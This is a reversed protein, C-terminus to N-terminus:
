DDIESELDDAGSPSTFGPVMYTLFDRGAIPSARRSLIGTPFKEQLSSLNEQDDPHVLFLQAEDTQPLEPIQEPWLVFDAGPQGAILAILRADMWHPIAVMYVNKSSGISEIFGRAVAGAESTNWAARREMDGYEDIVLNYNIVAAIAFLGIVLGAGIRRRWPEEFVNQSWAWIAALMVGAVTFVSIIAGGARGPHPNEGPFAISMISPLLLIPISLLLFLDIWNRGKAYRVILYVVGLHFLTGTAWDLAPRFPLSLVWIEGFDSTFMRMANWINSALIDVPPGPLPREAASVRTLTRYFVDDQYEYTVRLFPVAAVLALLAAIAVWTAAQRRHGKSLRHVLYLLLGLAVILPTIRAPTYGYISLGVLLGSIVFDNQARRRFGRVMFYMAPALLLPFFPLRMGVRSLINPWYAIGALAMAALGVEKGGVEKGLLYIFPLTLVGALATVTKLTLFSFDANFWKIAAAVAYFQMPERCANRPFFISTEGNLIDIVDLYKEAHDSIMELPVEALQTFRFTAALLFVAVVLLSWANLSVRLQPKRIFNRVEAPFKAGPVPGLWFARATVIISAGWFIVTSLRFTNDGATLYTVVALGLGVLLYNRSFGVDASKSRARRYMFDGYDGAWVAWGVFGAAVLYLFAFPWNFERQQMGVQAFAALILAAPTRLHAAQLHIETRTAPKEPEAPASEPFQVDTQEPTANDPIPIPKLRFLSVFWDLVTHEPEPTRRETNSAL